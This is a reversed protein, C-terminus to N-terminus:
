VGMLLVIGSAAGLLVSLVVLGFAIARDVRGFLRLQWVYSLYTVGVAAIGLFMAVDNHRLYGLVVCAILYLASNFLVSAVVPWSPTTPQAASQQELHRAFQRDQM